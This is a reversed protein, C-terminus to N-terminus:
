KSVASSNWSAASAASPGPHPQSVCFCLARLSWPPLPSPFHKKWPNFTLFTFLNFLPCPHCCLHTFGVHTCCTHPRAGNHQLYSLLVRATPPRNRSFAKARLTCCQVLVSSMPVHHLIHSPDLAAPPYTSVIQKCAVLVINETISVCERRM